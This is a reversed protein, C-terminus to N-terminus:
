GALWEHTDSEKTNSIRIHALAAAEEEPPLLYQSVLYSVLTVWCIPTSSGGDLISVHCCEGCGDVPWGAACSSHLYRMLPLLTAQQNTREPHQEQKQHDTKNIILDPAM